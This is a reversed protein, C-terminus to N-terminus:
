VKSYKDKKKKKKKKKKEKASVVICDKVGSRRTLRPM